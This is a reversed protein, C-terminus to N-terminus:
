GNVDAWAIGRAEGGRHPYDTSRTFGGAGFRLRDFRVRGKAPLGDVLIMVKDVRGANPLGATHQWGSTECKFHPRDLRFLVTQPATAPPVDVSPTEHMQWDPAAGFAVSVRVPKTSSHAVDLTMRSATSVDLHQLIFLALKRAPDGESAIELVKGRAADDRLTLTGSRSWADDVVWGQLSEFGDVPTAPPAPTPPKPTTPAPRPTGPETPREVVVRKGSLDLKPVTPDPKPSELRGALVGDVLTILGPTNGNYTRGLHIEIHSMRWWVGDRNAPEDTGFLQFWTDGAHCCSALNKGDQQYFIIFPRGTKLRPVLYRVHEAGAVGLNMRIRTFDKKGKLARDIVAVATGKAADVSEIRGVLVNTSADLMERLSFLREIFGFAPSAGVLLAAVLVVSIRM